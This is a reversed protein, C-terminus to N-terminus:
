SPESSTIDACFTELSLTFSNPATRYNTVPLTHAVESTFCLSTYYSIDYYIMKEIALRKIYHANLQAKVTIKTFHRVNTSCYLQPVICRECPRTRQSTLVSPVKDYYQM